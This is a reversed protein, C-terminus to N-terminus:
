IEEKSITLGLILWWILAVEPLFFTFDIFNHIIFVFGATILSVLQNKYATKRVNLFATRFVKTILWILSFLGLIGMEAWIQLYSNHAYRSQTLNFNGLGLGTLPSAKIISLTDKWYNIRMVTSFIPQIHQKQTASRIIFLSVTIILLGILFLIRKKELKGELYFYIVLALFISLFAGLSKTLLLAFSIAFIIFWRSKDKIILVLPTILALYGALTNPTVFPFFVRKREVYDLVFPNSIQEKTIYNSLQKFGFLYQYIALLSIILGALIITRIVQINNKYTLSLAILFLLMGSIYKYLELLSNPKNQSFVVSIILALCLLMLPYKIPKIKELPLGPSLFWIALFGMLFISYILNLYPFALSSIFPRIFILLLLIVFM